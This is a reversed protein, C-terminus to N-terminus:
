NSEYSTVRHRNLACTRGQRGVQIAKHLAARVGLVKSTIHGELQHARVLLDLAAVSDLLKDAVQMLLCEVRSRFELVRDDAIPVCGGLNVKNASV